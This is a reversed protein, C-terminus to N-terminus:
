NKFYRSGTLTWVPIDEGNLSAKEQSLDWSVVLDEMGSCNQESIYITGKEAFSYPHSIEDEWHCIEKDDSYFFLRFLNTGYINKLLIYNGSPFEEEEKTTPIYDRPPHIGETSRPVYQLEWAVDRREREEMGKFLIYNVFLSFVFLIVTILLGEKLKEKM